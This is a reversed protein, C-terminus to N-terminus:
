LIVHFSHRIEEIELVHLIDKILSVQHLIEIRSGIHGIQILGINRLIKSIHLVHLVHGTGHTNLWTGCAM